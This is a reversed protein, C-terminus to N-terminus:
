RPRLGNLLTDVVFELFAADRREADVHGLVRGHHEHFSSWATIVIDLLTLLMAADFSKLEGRAQAAEFRRILEANIADEGPWRHDPADVALHHGLRRVRPHARAWAVNGHLGMRLLKGMDGEPLAELISEAPMASVARELVADKLAQRTPFYHQLAGLSVGAHRAIDRLSPAACGREAFLTLAAEVVAARRDSGEPESADVGGSAYRSEEGDMLQRM